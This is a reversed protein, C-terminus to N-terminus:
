LCKINMIKYNWILIIVDVYSEAKHYSKVDKLSLLMMFLTDLIAARIVSCCEDVYIVFIELAPNRLCFAKPHSLSGNSPPKTAETCFYLFLSWVGLINQSTLM